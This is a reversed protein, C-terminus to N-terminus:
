VLVLELHKKLHHEDDRENLEGNWKRGSTLHQQLMEESRAAFAQWPCPGSPRTKWTRIKKSKAMQGNTWLQKKNPKKNNKQLESSPSSQLRPGPRVKNKPCSLIGLPVLSWCILKTALFIRLPTTVKHNQPRHRKKPWLSGCCRQPILMWVKTQIFFELAAQFIHIFTSIVSFPAFFEFCMSLPHFQYVFFCCLKPVDLFNFLKLEALKIWFYYYIYIYLIHGKLGKYVCQVFLISGWFQDFNFGPDPPQSFTHPLGSFLSESCLAPRGQRHIKTPHVKIDRHPRLTQKFSCGKKTRQTGQIWNFSQGIKSWFTIAFLPPPHNRYIGWDWTNWYNNCVVWCWRGLMMWCFFNNCPGLSRLPTQTPNM